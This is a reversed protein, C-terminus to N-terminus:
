RLIGARNLLDDIARDAAGPPAFHPAAAQGFVSRDRAVLEDVAQLITGPERSFRMTDERVHRQFADAGNEHLLITPLGFALAEHACTSWWTLHADATKMLAYLPLRTADAVHLRGPKAVTQLAHAVAREQDGMAPHLRVWWMWDRPAQRLLPELIDAFPVDRQLTVLLARSAEGRLHQAEGVAREGEAWGEAARWRNLWPHGGLHIGAPGIPFGNAEVLNESDDKGWVWWADPMTTYVGKEPRRRWQAYAFHGPGQLGHQIDVTLIGLRRAAHIAAWGERSYWCDVLLLRTGALLGEMADAMCALYRFFDSWHSWPPLDIGLRSKAWRCYPSFWDPETELLPLGRVRRLLWAREMWADIAFVPHVRGRTPAGTEWLCQGIGRAHLMDVLPDLIANHAAAGISINRASRGLLVVASPRPPAAYLTRALRGAARCRARLRAGLPPLPSTTKRQLVSLGTRLRLSPWASLGAVAWEDVPHTEEYEGLSEAIQARNTM